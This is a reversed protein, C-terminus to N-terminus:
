ALTDEINNIGTGTKIISSVASVEDYKSFLAILKRKFDEQRNKSVCGIMYHIVRLVGSLSQYDQSNAINAPGRRISRPLAIDYLINGHACHNRVVRIVSIYSDFTKTNNLGFHKAVSRKSNVSRIAQYLYIVEGLTMFEITKWAPAYKDNIHTQHHHRLIPNKRMKNYVEGDFSQIYSSLVVSPDVFWTPSDKHENSLSYTLFTRFNVEIRYIFKLLINRLNYDFYYLKVIHDFNTGEKFLHLRRLKKPYSIEFPFWYFGLRYYGIDLLVEEAKVPNEIIMGREKLLEIQESITTAKNGMNLGIIIM